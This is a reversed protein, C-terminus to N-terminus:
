YNQNKKIQAFVDGQESNNNQAQIYVGMTLVGATIKGASIGRPKVM